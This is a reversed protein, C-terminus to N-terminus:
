INVWIVMTSLHPKMVCKYTIFSAQAMNFHTHAYTNLIDSGNAIFIALPIPKFIYIKSNNPISLVYM